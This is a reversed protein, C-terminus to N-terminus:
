NFLNSDMWGGLAPLPKGSCRYVIDSLILPGNLQQLLWPYQLTNDDRSPNWQYEATTEKGDKTLSYTAYITPDGSHWPYVLSRLNEWEVTDVTVNTMFRGQIKGQIWYYGNKGAAFLVGNENDNGDRLSEELLIPEDGLFKKAEHVLEDPVPQDRLITNLDLIANRTLSEPMQELYSYDRVLSTEESEKIEEVVDSCRSMMSQFHSRVETKDAGSVGRPAKVEFSSTEDTHRGYQDLAIGSIEVSDPKKQDFALIWDYPIAKEVRYESRREEKLFVVRRSSLVLFGKQTQCVLHVDENPLLLLQASKFNEAGSPSLGEIIRAM